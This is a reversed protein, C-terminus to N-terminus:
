ILSKYVLRDDTLYLDSITPKLSFFKERISKQYWIFIIYSDVEFEYKFM